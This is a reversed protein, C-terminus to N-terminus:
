PLLQAAARAVAYIPQPYIGGGVVVIVMAMTLLRAPLTLRIPPLAEEPEKLYAAKVVLAYYYLSIVVNVMGILVLFFYGKHMAAIFVLFKGTFGITPPLGGLSFMALLLAMALLPSRKHLGALQSIKLNEGDPAVKVLVLFSTFNMALYAAAYYVAASYGNRGASLIGILVYGAHAIASYALLRKLDQQVIAVLNGLTMSAISLGILIYVLHVNGNGLSVIRMLVAVAAVKTATAIYATVQNAAGQYVGPAWVHFPFVALKFFFGCLTLFLGTFPLPDNLVGPLVKILDALYTTHTGGYLLALGFLMIASTVVGVFFYKIGAEAQLGQGRRFAVLVYLSYSSLELAIYLTLLEVSSVLLMLALTCLSLLFYFERHRSPGIGQLDSCISVILFLGVALMVKFVQSFLDVRYAHFFLSGESRVASLAVVVGAAALVLATLYDRKTNPRGSMSFILFFLTMMALWIEPAFLIWRM